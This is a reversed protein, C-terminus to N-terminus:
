SARYPRRCRGRCRRCMPQAMSVPSRVWLRCRGDVAPYLGSVGWVTQKGFKDSGSTLYGVPVQGHITEAAYFVTSALEEPCSGEVPVSAALAYTRYPDLEKLREQRVEEFADLAVGAFVHGSIGGVAARFGSAEFLACLLVATDECDGQMLCLTQLPMAWYEAQGYISYDEGQGSVRAPYSVAVGAFSSIFDVYAQGDSPDGGIRVFESRLSDAIESVTGTVDSLGPLESFLRWHGDKNYEDAISREALLEAVDISFSVSVDVVSGGADYSWSATREIGGGFGFDFTQGAASIRYLGPQLSISPGADDYGTYRVVSAGDKVCYPALLDLVHWEVPSDYSVTLASYDVRFGDPVAFGLDAPGGRGIDDRPVDPVHDSMSLVGTEAAAEANDRSVYGAYLFRDTTTECLYMTYGDLELTGVALKDSKGHSTFGDLGVAALMHDSLAVVGAPYGAAAFLAAALFSTDECDGAGRHLTEMPYAWYEKQGYLHQDPSGDDSRIYSGSGNRSIPDPYSICCQVFSLLYDVYDQGGVSGLPRVERFEAELLAELALISGDVAIFRSSPLTDSIHRIADQDDQYRLVDSFRYGFSIEYEHSLLGALIPQRWSFTRTVDGDLVVTGTRTSGGADMRVIYKGPEDITLTDGKVASYVSRSERDLYIGFQDSYEYAPSELDQVYWIVDGGADYTLIATGGSEALSVGDRALPGAVTLDGVTRIPEEADGAALSWAIAGSAAVAVAVLVVTALRDAKM